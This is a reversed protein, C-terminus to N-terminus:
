IYIYSVLKELKPPNFCRTLRFLTDKEEKQNEDKQSFDKQTRDKPEKEEKQTTEKREQETTQHLPDDNKRENTQPLVDNKREKQEKQGEDKRENTQLSLPDDDKREREENIQAMINRDNTQLPDDNRSGDDSGGLCPAKLASDAM